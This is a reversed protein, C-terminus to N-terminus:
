SIHLMQTPEQWFLVTKFVFRQRDLDRILGVFHVDFPDTLILVTQNKNLSTASAFTKKKQSNLAKDWAIHPLTHWGPIIAL